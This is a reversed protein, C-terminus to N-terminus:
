PKFVELLKPNDKFVTILGRELARVCTEEDVTNPLMQMDWVAHLVEHFLVAKCHDPHMPESSLQIERHRLSHTGDYENGMADRITDKAVTVKYTSGGVKITSPPKWFKPM